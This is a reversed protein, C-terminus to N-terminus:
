DILAKVKDACLWGDMASSAIGGAYGSGEGCPFLGEIEVHQGTELDRPIRVASSTRSEVGVVIAENTLFGRLKTNFLNFGQQLRQTIEPQLWKHIPSTVLGPIYSSSPLGSSNKGTVFDNLRQAPAKLGHVQNAAQGEIMTQFALGALPGSNKFTAFEEEGVETVIGANAYPSTRGSNSMGNVVVEGNSTHSPVIIGGPCMCFSFVGRNKVQGVLSYSAAPLIDKRQYGHYVIEDIMAQPHEVRVGLAFPKAELRINAQHLMRYVERASHGTALILSKCKIKTGGELEFGTLESSNIFINTIHSNFHIEGGFELITARINKIIRSLRDTGIHPHADTLIDNQAGFKNFLGLVLGYDGRKKSRTYLKGDSFTGAGGEGFCYNSKPNIEGTRYLAAIDKKREEVNHGLEHIIPKIGLEILRLAAFLGAPGAGVIHVERAHHVDLPTYTIAFPKYEEDIWVRFGLNVKINRQRADISKRIIELHSIQTTLVSLKQAIITKFGDEQSAEIPTLNLNIEIPM